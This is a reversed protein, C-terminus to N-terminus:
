NAVVNGLESGRDDASLVNNLNPATLAFTKGTWDDIATFRINKILNLTQGIQDPTPSVAVEFYLGTISNAPLDSQSWSLARTKEDYVIPDGISVSQKGTFQVGPALTATLVADRIPNSTNNARIFIWYKTTEGVTPPLVGRGLQDGDITFYRTQATLAMEAALPATATKGAISVTQGAVSPLEGVFIPTVELSTKETQNLNFKPLLFLKISFKGSKNPKITTLATRNTKDAVLSNGDVILDNERATAKIDVVGVPNFELRLKPSLLETESANRWSIEVPIEMGGELYAPANWSANLNFNPLSAIEISSLIKSQTMGYVSKVTVGTETTLDYRNAQTPLVLSAGITKTEGPAFSLSSMPTLFKLPQKTTQDYSIIDVPFIVRDSENTVKIEVAVEQGPLANKPATVETHLISDPLNVTLISIKQARNNKKDPVYSLLGTIREDSGVTTWLYGWIIKEGKAGPKIVGLDFTSQDSFDTAPTRARDIEFGAPLQVSLVAQNLDFQARNQYTIGLAVMEGSKIRGTGLTLKLDVLDTTGPKWFFFFLSAGLMVIATALLILDFVFLKKAHRYIGHYRTIYHNHFWRYVHKHM